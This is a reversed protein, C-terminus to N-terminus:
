IEESSMVSKVWAHKSILFMMNAKMLAETDTPFTSM